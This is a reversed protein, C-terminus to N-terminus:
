SVTARESTTQVQEKHYVAYKEQVFLVALGGLVAASAIAVFNYQPSLNLSLLIGVFTPAVIGGIRGFAMTSGLATSRMKEPYYQSVFANAINQVGVSAAGIIAILVFAVMMSNAFGILSLAVAGCFFLPVLVKKFGWKNVLPGFVVTGIIAGIQMVATFTLSSSLDYGVEMMLRPLWTNMSYILVFASFCSLWFMVTSFARKETFLKVIPLSVQTKREPKVLEITGDHSIHPDVLALVKRVEEERGKELLFGVSEPVGKMLFPLFLVPIGGIWYIPEWGVTTLLARSTLAAAIAGVSYGCFISAVIATRVRKPFIETALAIVNPMVGGLGIGAIIRSITFLIPNPAFGALFTFFGFLFTTLLIIKKRGLRDALMGFLVAGIATGIVTYSGIAGATVDSIGWEQILLPVSAGYIVVDYGDLTIVLFLWIMLWIHFSHIRSNDIVDAPHISKM